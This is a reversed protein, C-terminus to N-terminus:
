PASCSRADRPLSDYMFSNLGSRSPTTSSARPRPGSVSRARSMGPRRTISTRVTTSVRTSHITAAKSGLPGSVHEPAQERKKEDYGGRGGPERRVHGVDDQDI